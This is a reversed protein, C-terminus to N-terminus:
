QCPEEERGVSLITHKGDKTLSEIWPSGLPFNQLEGFVCDYPDYDGYGLDELDEDDFEISVIAKYNAM